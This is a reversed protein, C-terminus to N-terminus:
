PRDAAWARGHLLAASQGRRAPTCDSRASAGGIRESSRLSNLMWRCASVAPPLRRTPSSWRTTKSWARRCWAPTAWSRPRLGRVPSRATRRPPLWARSNPERKELSNGPPAPSASKGHLQQNIRSRRQESHIPGAPWTAMRAPLPQPGRGYGVARLQRAGAPRCLPFQRRDPPEGARAATLAVRCLNLHYGTAAPAPLRSLRHGVEAPHLGAYVEHRNRVDDLVRTQLIVRCLECRYRRLLGLTAM